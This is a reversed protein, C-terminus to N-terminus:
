RHVSCYSLRLSGLGRRSLALIHFFASKLRPSAGDQVSGVATGSDIGPISRRPQSRCTASCNRSRARLDGGRSLLHTAFLIDCRMRRPATPCASRPRAATGHHASHHPREAPRRPCRCFDAGEAPLPHPCMAVYDEVLVLVNQLVPVMRTKTAKAPSLWSMAPAGALARRPAKLSLAESIRLGSGYLLAMVAADRAWIWPDRPRAPLAGRCRCLTQSGDYSYTKRCPKQRIKPARIASLAGVKGKSEGNSSADSRLAPRRTDAMLPVVASIPDAGADGHVGAVDSAELAAFGALTVRRAGTNASSTWSNVSPRRATPRPGDEAVAQARCASAFALRTM